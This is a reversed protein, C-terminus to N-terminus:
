KLLEQLKKKLEPNKKIAEKFAEPHMTLMHLMREHVRPDNMMQERCKQMHEMMLKRMEQDQMMMPMM